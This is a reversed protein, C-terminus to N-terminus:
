VDKKVGSSAFSSLSSMLPFKLPMPASIPNLFPIRVTIVGRFFEGASLAPMMVPSLIKFISSVIVASFAWSWRRRMHHFLVGRFMTEETIPAFVCALLYLGFLIIISGGIRGLWNQVSYSISELVTNLLVGLTAFVLGLGLVFAVSNLFVKLKANKSDAVTTGSLYALFGPILPLVCPSLFSVLGAIFAVYITLETM